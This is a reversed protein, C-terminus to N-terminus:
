TSEASPRRGHEVTADPAQGAALADERVAAESRFRQRRCQPDLAHSLEM